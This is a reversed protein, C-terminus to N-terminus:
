NSALKTTMGGDDVLRFEYRLSQLFKRAAIRQETPIVRHRQALRRKIRDVSRCVRHYDDSDFGDYARARKKFLMELQGRDHAFESDLLVGSWSITGTLPELETTKLRRPRTGRYVQSVQESDLNRKKSEKYDDNMRRKQFYTEVYKVRNDLNKSKATEINIAARSWRELGLGLSRFFDGGGRLIGEQVTSAHRYTPHYSGAMYAERDTQGLAFNTSAIVTVAALLFHYRM